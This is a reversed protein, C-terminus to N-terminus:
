NAEARNVPFEMGLWAKFFAKQTESPSELFRIKRKKSLRKTLKLHRKILQRDRFLTLEVEDGENYQILWKELSKSDVQRKDIALLIDGSTLGAEWAPGEREVSTLQILSGQEKSEFGMWVKNDSNKVPAFELGVKNLLNNFDIDKPSEINERWWNKYLKNTLKEITAVVEATDFDTVVFQRGDRKDNQKQYLSDHLEKIGASMNSDELMEFDLLWSAMFGETYINVSFNNAFDGGQAIWKEMSAASISQINRGPKQQFEDIREALKDLFEDMTQLDSNLLIHDQLYSTTGEALWLLDSYNEHQYEYPVLGKPRYAKVNWTHVLEHAATRLFRDLYDKRKAFLESPRQIVTSNIHETAGTAEATAHIIFVYKQYPYGKWITQSASVMKQLDEVITQSKKAPKGWIVVQYDREDESFEYVDNVGTEIPSDALQHYDQALFEHPQAQVMGSFSKWGVPVNLEVRHVQEMLEPVYMFVATADLYAHSYDIHRTRSSLENAYLLYSVTLERESPNEIQWSSKDIRKWVLERGNKGKAIFDRVGNAQNLIKYNGTRWAPMKVVVSKMGAPIRMEVQALHHEPQEISILYSVKASLSYCFTTLLSLFTIKQILRM